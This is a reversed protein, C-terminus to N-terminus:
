HGPRSIVFAIKRKFESPSDEPEGTSWSISGCDEVTLGHRKGIAKAQKEILKVADDFNDPKLRKKSKKAVM